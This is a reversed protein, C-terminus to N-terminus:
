VVLKEGFYASYETLVIQQIENARLVNTQAKVMENVDYNAPDTRYNFLTEEAKEKSIEAKDYVERFKRILAKKVTSAKYARKDRPLANYIQEFLPKNPDIPKGNIMEQLDIVAEENKM